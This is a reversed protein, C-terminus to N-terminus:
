SNTNGDNLVVKHRDDKLTGSKQTHYLFMLGCAAHALHSLNTEVDNDFGMNFANLHRSVASVLQSSKHGKTWNYSEYKQAGFGLVRSLEDLFLGSILSHPPKEIYNEDNKLASDTTSSM